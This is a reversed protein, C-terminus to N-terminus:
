QLSASSNFGDVEEHDAGRSVIAASVAKGTARCCRKAKDARRDADRLSPAINNRDLQPRRSAAADRPSKTRTNNLLRGYQVRHRDRRPAVAAVTPMRAYYM